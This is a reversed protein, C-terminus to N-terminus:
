REILDATDILSDAFWEIEEDIIIDIPADVALAFTYTDTAFVILACTRTDENEGSNFLIRTAPYALVPDQDVFIVDRALPYLSDLVTPLDVDGARRSLTLLVNYEPLLFLENYDGNEYFDTGLPYADEPLDAMLTLGTPSEPPIANSASVGDDFVDLSEIWWEILEWYGDEGDYADMYVDVAFALTYGDTPIVVLTGYFQGELDPVYIFRTAPYYSIPNQDIELVDWAYPYLASLLDYPSMAGDLRMMTIQVLEDSTMLWEVYGDEMEETGIYFVDRPLQATLIPGDDLSDAQAFAPILLLIALIAPLIRRNM